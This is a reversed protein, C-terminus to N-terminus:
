QIVVYILTAIIKQQTIMSELLISNSFRDRLKLYISVPTHTDVVIKKYVADYKYM